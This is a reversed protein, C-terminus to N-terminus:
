IILNLLERVSQKTVPDKLDPAIESLPELVFARERFRPHPVELGPESITEDGFLIL